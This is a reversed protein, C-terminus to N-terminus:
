RDADGRVEIELGRSSPRVTLSIETANLSSQEQAKGLRGALNADVAALEPNQTQSGLGLKHTLRDLEDARVRLYFLPPDVIEGQGIVQALEGERKGVAVGFAGPSLAVSLQGLFATTGSASVTIPPDGPEITPLTVGMQQAGLALLSAPRDTAVFLLAGIPSDESEFLMLSLGRIGSLPSVNMLTWSSSLDSAAESLPVLAPCTFPKDAVRDILERMASLARRVDIAVAVTMAAGISLDPDAGPVQGAINALKDSIAPALEITSSMHFQAGRASHYGFVLRPMQGAVRELEDRCVDPMDVALQDLLRGVDVYGVGYSQFQYSAAIRELTTADALSSILPEDGLLAPVIRDADATNVASAILDNERIALVWRTGDRDLHYYIRGGRKSATAGIREAISALASAFRDSSSLQIRVVPTRGLGYIVWPTLPDLGIRALSERSPSDGVQELVALQLTLSMDLIQPNNASATRLEDALPAIARLGDLYSDMAPGPMPTLAAFVYPTDAPVHRLIAAPKGSTLSSEASTAGAHSVMPPRDTRPCGSTTAAMVIMVAARLIIVSQRRHIGM